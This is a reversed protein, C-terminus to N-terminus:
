KCQMYLPICTKCNVGQLVGDYRGQKMAALEPTITYCATEGSIVPNLLTVTVTKKGVRTIKLPATSTGPVCLTAGAIEIPRMAHGRNSEM